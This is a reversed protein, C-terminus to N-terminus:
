KCPKKESIQFFPSDYAEHRRNSQNQSKYEVTHLVKVM